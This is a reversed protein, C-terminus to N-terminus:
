KKKVSPNKAYKDLAKLLNGPKAIERTLNQAAKIERTPMMMEMRARNASAENKNPPNNSASLNWLAYAVVRNSAVGQGNAYMVGLTIQARTNEQNAALRVWKMAQKYDQPVGQGKVYMVGLNTQADAHGQDAALRFSKVAEKDDQPVGQGKAYMVGLNTQSDAHGQDAALRFWKVAEKDDKLVGQGSAYRVGLYIQADANGQDALPEIERLATVYDEKKHAALGEEFGAQGISPILSCILSLVFLTIRM